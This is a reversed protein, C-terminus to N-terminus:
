WRFGFPKACVLIPTTLLPRLHHSSRLSVMCGDLSFMRMITEVAEEVDPLSLRVVEIGAEQLKQAAETINRRVPPWPTFTGDGFAVGVRLNEPPSSGSWPRHLCAPDYRWPQAEMITKMFYSCSRLSSAMSGAVPVIGPVGPPAPSRQGAYPVVSASPRFGYIGCCISPIRISGAIDTGVGLVSGRLAILAGEGGSSGGATLTLNNPNLTRGFVNNDSDATM